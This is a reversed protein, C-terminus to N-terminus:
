SRAATQSPLEGYRQQYAAAFRGLHTFGRQYAATSVSAEGGLLDARVRALRQDRVYTTPSCGFHERFTDGLTRVSCGAASALDGLTMQESLNEEIFELARRLPRPRLPSRGQSLLSSFNHNHALLLGTAFVRAQAHRFEPNDFLYGGADLQDILSEAMTRLGSHAGPGLDLGFDFVIPGDPPRGVLATFEGEVLERDLRIGLTETCPRSPLLIQADGPNFVTAMAPTNVVQTGRRDSLLEGSICFNVFYSGATHQAGIEVGLGSRIYGISFSPEKIGRLEYGHGSATLSGFPRISGVFMRRLAALLDVPDDCTAVPFRALADTRM